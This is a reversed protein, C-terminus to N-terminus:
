AARRQDNGRSGGNLTDIMESAQKRTLDEVRSVGFRRHAEDNLTRVDMQRQLALDTLFKIQKGSARSDTVSRSPGNANAAPRARDNAVETELPEAAHVRHTNHLEAEVSDRVLGFTSHIKGQLQNPTLGDPIEVEVSCHYSQSSYDQGEVPVKKSYSANLKLM